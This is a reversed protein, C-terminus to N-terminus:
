GLMASPHRIPLTVTEVGLSLIKAKRTPKAREKKKGVAGTKTKKKGAACTKAVAIEKPV